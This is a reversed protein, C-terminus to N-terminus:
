RKRRRDIMAEIARYIRPVYAQKYPYLEASDTTHVLMAPDAEFVLVEGDRDIGCDIGFYELGIAKAIAQLTDFRAGDFASHLDKLFAEEEARMWAHESMPANYYHIMWNPSIALHTPFPEGDVFVIRYKRYFGDASAYDVFPSVVYIDHREREVYGACDAASQLRELGHGAHSGFPRAIIPFDFSIKASQLADATLREIPPIRAGTNALTRPLYLRSTELVRMPANLTPVKAASTIQSALKLYPGSEPSEAIANWILDYPPIQEARARVEDLLFLKHITTTERDIVFDIPINTQWDGPACLVLISRAERPAVSSYMRQVELALRQHAIALVRDGTMQLLEYLTLNSAVNQPDVGLIHRHEAIAGQIDGSEYLTQALNQRLAIAAPHAAVGNRFAEIAEPLKGEARLRIGTDNNQAASQNM